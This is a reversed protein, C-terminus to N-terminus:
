GGILVMSRGPWIGQPVTKNPVEQRIRQRVVDLQGARLPSLLDVGEPTRLCAFIRGHSDLRARDCRDCFPHSVTTIMGVIREQDDVLFRHRDATASEPAQGLYPFGRKLSELAEAGPLYESEYLAAGEGFPMLEIFRMECDHEAALRVLGDLHNGNINRMLVANLRIHRIGAERAAFIGDLAAALSGGRTLDRYGAADVSDISINLYEIGSRHLAAAVPALLLANTTLALEADPLEARLRGVLHPLNKHLLPEGGTVRVKYVPFEAHILRVLTLLEEDSAVALSRRGSADREPRCYRCRINCRDTVSLRLYLRRPTPNCAAHEM